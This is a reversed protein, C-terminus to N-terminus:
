GENEVDFENRDTCDGCCRGWGELKRFDSHRRLPGFLAKSKPPLQAIRVGHQRLSFLGVFDAFNLAMVGIRSGRFHLDSNQCAANFLERCMQILVTLVFARTAAEKAENRVTALM